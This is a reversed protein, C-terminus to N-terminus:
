NIHYSEVINLLADRFSISDRKSVTVGNLQEIVQQSRAEFQRRDLLIRIQDISKSTKDSNISEKARVLFRPYLLRYKDALADAISWVPDILISKGNGANNDALIAGTGRGALFEMKEGTAQTACEAIGRADASFNEASPTGKNNGSGRYNFAVLTLGELTGTEALFQAADEDADPYYLLAPTGPKGIKWGELATRM